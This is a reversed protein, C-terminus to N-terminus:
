HINIEHYTCIYYYLILLARATLAESSVRLTEVFFREIRPYELRRLLTRGRAAALWM